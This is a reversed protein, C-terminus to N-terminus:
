RRGFHVQGTYELDLGILTGTGHGQVHELGGSGGVIVWSMDWPTATPVPLGPDQRGRTLIRLSGEHSVGDADVVVGDFDLVGRYTNFEAKAHHVVTYEEYIEGVLTGDIDGEAAVDIFTTQGRQEVSLVVPPDYSLGGSAESPADAHVVAASLAVACVAIPAWLAQKLM